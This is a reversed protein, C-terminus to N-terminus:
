ENADGEPAAPAAEGGTAGEAPAAEGTTSADVPAAEGTTSADVPAAEGTTGAPQTTDTTTEPEVVARAAFPAVKPHEPAFRVLLPDAYSITLKDGTPEASVQGSPEQAASCGGLLVLCSVSVLVALAVMARM